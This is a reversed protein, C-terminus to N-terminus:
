NNRANYDGILSEHEMDDIIIKEDPICEKLKFHHALTKLKSKCVKNSTASQTGLLSRLISAVQKYHIDLVYAIQPAEMEEPLLKRYKTELVKLVVTIYSKDSYKHLELCIDKFIKLDTM